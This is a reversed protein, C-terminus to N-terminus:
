DGGNKRFPSAEALAEGEMEVMQREQEIFQAVARRLAPDAIWHASYTVVPLYGRQVKHPGQAGAEVRKLGREIAFAIAQYYCAEFHLFRYPELCGWYRGYLTDGGILNLAGGVARGGHEAWMLVIREGLNRHLLSFFARNLYAPGWKRDITDRYFRYFVDWHRETIADGTLTRLVVGSDAVAQREKRIAKRKRSALANLFDDFDGYGENTWHFQHGIRTLLGAAALRQWEAETPFTVHLSSAGHREALQLMGAILADGLDGPEGPRVMLRPGTVPTFPVAAQLKPYYPIGARESADAWAWDFVYEGYSHNKLYLPACARLAGATDEILLHQPMWGTKPTVTGSAELTALFAHSVFPNATGACADWAGAPVGALGDVVRISIAERGDPM